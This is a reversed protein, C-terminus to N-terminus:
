ASSGTDELTDVRARAELAQIRMIHGIAHDNTDQRQWEHRYAQTELVLIWTELANNYAESRRLKDVEDRLAAHDGVEISATNRRKSARISADVSDRGLRYMLRPFMRWVALLLPLLPSSPEPLPLPSTARLRIKVAKYGLPAEAYTPRTHTPLSPLPLPPLPIQPLPSSLPTLPSPLSYYYCSRYAAPPPPTTAFEDTEFPEIDKAFPVLNVAPSAIATPCSSPAGRMMTKRPLGKEEDEMTRSCRLM